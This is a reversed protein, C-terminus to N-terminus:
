VDSKESYLKNTLAEPAMWRYPLDTCCQSVYLEKMERSLGFDAVKLYKGDTMLINRSALDRHVIGVGALFEQSHVYFLNKTVTVFM